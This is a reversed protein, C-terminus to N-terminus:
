SFLLLWVHKEAFLGFFFEASQFRCLVEPFFRQKRLSVLQILGFGSFAYAWSRHVQSGPWGAM